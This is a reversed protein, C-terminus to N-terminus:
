LSQIFHPNSMKATEKEVYFKKQKYNSTKSEFSHNERMQPKNRKTKEREYPKKKSPKNCSVVYTPSVVQVM